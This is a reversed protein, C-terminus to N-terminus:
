PQGGRGAPRNWRTSVRFVDVPCADICGGCNQCDGSLIVPSENGKLAPVIVHPEPCITFCAGCDTCADRNAASVRVVAGKGVLGYFAGVPCLHSCWARRSVFLDLLFVALIIAWGFGIGSIFARQLLSVPNVFEWAITGTLASAVLTSGLIALRTRRDLKRDRTLGTKERLWHAADTVVNVPCVWGCYVRGGVVLYFLLVILAGGAVPLAPVSGGFLSQVVIYPDGLTVVGGIESAAFNGRAIWIGAMPGLVFLGLVSLQSIRRLLWWKHARLLGHAQVGLRRSDSIWWGIM